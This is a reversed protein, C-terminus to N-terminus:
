GEAKSPRPTFLPRLLQMAHAVEARQATPLADLTQALRSQATRRAARVFGTGRTTARLVVRRRDEDSEERLVLGRDVLGDVLRSMAPLSLGVRDATASLSAGGTRGLFTLVRFQPVSVSPGRGRRMEVRIFQMVSPVTDLIDAACTAATSDM